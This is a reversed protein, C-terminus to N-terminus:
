FRKIQIIIVVSRNKRKERKEEEKGRKEEKKERKDEEKALINIAQQVMNILYSIKHGHEQYSILFYVFCFAIM